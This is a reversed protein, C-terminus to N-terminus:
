DRSQIKYAVYFAIPIAAFSRSGVVLVCVNSFATLQGQFLIQLVTELPSLGLQGSVLVLTIVLVTVVIHILTGLFAPFYDGDGKRVGWGCMFGIALSFVPMRLGQHIALYFWLLSAPMAFLLAFFFPKWFPAPPEPEFDFHDFARSM